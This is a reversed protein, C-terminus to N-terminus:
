SKNLKELSFFLTALSVVLWIIPGCFLTFTLIQIPKEPFTNEECANCTVFVIAGVVSWIVLFIEFPNM